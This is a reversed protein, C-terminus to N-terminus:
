ARARTMQDSRGGNDMHFDPSRRWQPQLPSRALSCPRRALSGLPPQLLRSQRRIVTSANASALIFFQKGEKRGEREREKKGGERGEETVKGERAAAINM